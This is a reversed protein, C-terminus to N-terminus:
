HLFIITSNIISKSNDDKYNIVTAKINGEKAYDPKTKKEQANSTFILLSFALLLFTKM